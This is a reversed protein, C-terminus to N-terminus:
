QNRICRPQPPTFRLIGGRTGQRLEGCNVQWEKELGRRPDGSLGTRAALLGANVQLTM